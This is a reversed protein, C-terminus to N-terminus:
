MSYILAVLSTQLLHMTIVAYSSFCHAREYYFLFCSIYCNKNVSIGRLSIINCIELTGTGLNCVSRITWISLTAMSTYNLLIM